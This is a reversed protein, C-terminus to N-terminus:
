RQRRPIQDMVQAVGAESHRDIVHESRSGARGTRWDYLSMGLVALLTVLLLLSNMFSVYWLLSRAVAIVARVGIGVVYGVRFYDISRRRLWLALAALMVGGAAWPQVLLSFSGVMIVLALARM